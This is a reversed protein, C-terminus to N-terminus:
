HCDSTIIKLYFLSDDIKWIKKMKKLPLYGASFTSCNLSRMCKSSTWWFSLTNRNIPEDCWCIMALIELYKSFLGSRKLRMTIQLRDGRTIKWTIFLILTFYNFISLNRSWYTFCNDIIVNEQTMKMIKRCNRFCFAWNMQARHNSLTVLNPRGDIRDFEGNKANMWPSIWRLIRPMIVPMLATNM